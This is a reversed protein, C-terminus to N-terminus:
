NGPAWGPIGAIHKLLNMQEADQDGYTNNADGIEEELMEGLMEGLNANKAAALMKFFKLSSEDMRIGVQVMKRTDTTM